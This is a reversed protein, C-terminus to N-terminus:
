YKEGVYFIVKKRGKSRKIIKYIENENLNNTLKKNSTEETKGMEDQQSYKLGLVSDLSSMFSIKDDIISIPSFGIENFPSLIRTTSKKTHYTKYFFRDAHLRDNIISYIINLMKQEKVSDPYSRHILRIQWGYSVFCLDTRYKFMGSYFDKFITNTNSYFYYIAEDTDMYNTHNRIYRRQLRLEM